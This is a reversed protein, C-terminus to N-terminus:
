TARCAKYLALARKLAANKRQVDSVLYLSLELWDEGQIRPKKRTESILDSPVPPCRHKTAIKVPPQQPSSACNTLLLAALPLALLLGARSKSM